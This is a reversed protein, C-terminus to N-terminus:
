RTSTVIPNSKGANVTAYDLPFALERVVPQEHRSYKAAGDRISTTPTAPRAFFPGFLSDVFIWAAAAILTAVLVMRVLLMFVRLANAREPHRAIEITM